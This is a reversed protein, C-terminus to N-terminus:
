ITFMLASGSGGEEGTEKAKHPPVSFCFRGGGNASPASRCKSLQVCKTDRGKFSTRKRATGSHRGRARESKAATLSLATFFLVPKSNRTGRKPVVGSQKLSSCHDGGIMEEHTTCTYHFCFPEELSTRLCASVRSLDPPRFIGLQCNSGARFECPTTANGFEREM